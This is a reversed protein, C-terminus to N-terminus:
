DALDITFIKLKSEAILQRGDESFWIRPIVGGCDIRYKSVFSIDAGSYITIRGDAGAAAVKTEDKSVAITSPKHTQNAAELTAARLYIKTIGNVNVFAAAKNKTFIFQSQDTLGPVVIAIETKQTLPDYFSISGNKAILQRGDETTPGWIAPSDCVVPRATAVVSALLILILVQNRGM